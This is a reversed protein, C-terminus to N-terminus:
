NAFAPCSQSASLNLITTGNFSKFFKSFKTKHVLVTLSWDGLMVYTGKLFVYPPLTNSVPAQLIERFLKTSEITTITVFTVKKPTRLFWDNLLKKYIGSNSHHSLGEYYVLPHKKIIKGKQSTHKHVSSSLMTILTKYVFGHSTSFM